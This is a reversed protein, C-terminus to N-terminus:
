NSWIKRNMSKIKKTAQQLAFDHRGIAEVTEEHTLGQEIGCNTAYIKWATVLEIVDTATLLMKPENITNM